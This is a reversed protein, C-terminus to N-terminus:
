RVGFKKGSLFLQKKCQIIGLTKNGANNIQRGTIRRFTAQVKRLRNSENEFFRIEIKKKKKANRNL